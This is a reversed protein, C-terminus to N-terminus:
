QRANEGHSLALIMAAILNMATATLWIAGLERVFSGRELLAFAMATATAAILVGQGRRQPLSRALGFHHLLKLIVSNLYLALLWFLWVLFALGVFMLGSLWGSLTEPIFRAFYLYSIAYIALHASFAEMGNTEARTPDGGRLKALLRPLAFYFRASRLESM